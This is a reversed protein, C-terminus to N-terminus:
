YWGHSMWFSQAASWSGYRSAVYNNAVREQNAPSYDGNLYSSDLQYKGYYRGNQATYSGGSERNAIWDRASDGGNYSSVTNTDNQATVAPQQTQATTNNDVAQQVTSADPASQVDSQSAVAVQGDDKILLKQGVYIMNIDQINNDGAVQNILSLDNKLQYSIGSLTDGPKVTYISDAKAIQTAGFLSVISLVTAVAVQRFKM